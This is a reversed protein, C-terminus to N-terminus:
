LLALNGNNEKRPNSILIRYIYECTKGDIHLPLYQAAGYILLLDDPELGVLVVLPYGSDSQRSRISPKQCAECGRSQEGGLEDEPAM